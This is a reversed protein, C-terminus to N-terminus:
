SQVAKSQAIIDKVRDRDLWVVIGLQKTGNFDIPQNTGFTVKTIGKNMNLSDTCEDLFQVQVKDDGYAAILESVKM